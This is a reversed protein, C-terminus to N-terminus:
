LSVRDGGAPVAPPPLPLRHTGSPQPIHCTRCARAFGNHFFRDLPLFNADMSIMGICGNTVFTGRQLATANAPDAPERAVNGGHCVM